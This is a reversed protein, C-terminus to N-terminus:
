GLLSQGVWQGLGAHRSGAAPSCSGWDTVPLCIALAEGNGPTILLHFHSGAQQACAM